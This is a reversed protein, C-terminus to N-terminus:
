RHFTDPDVYVLTKVQGDVMARKLKIIGQINKSETDSNISDWDIPADPNQRTDLFNTIMEANLLKKLTEPKKIYETINSKNEILKDWVEQASIETSAIGDENITINSGYQSSAYPVNNWSGDKLTGTDLTIAYMISCIFAAILCIILGIIIIPKLATIIAKKVIKKVRELQKNSQDGM